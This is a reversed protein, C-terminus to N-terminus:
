EYKKIKDGTKYYKSLYKLNGETVETYNYTDDFHTAIKKVEGSKTQELTFCKNLEFYEAYANSILLLGLVMIGLLKKM